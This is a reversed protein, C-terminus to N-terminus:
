RDEERSHTRTRTSPRATQRRLWGQAALDDLEATERREREARRQMARRELIMQAARLRTRDDQWRGRASEAAVRSAEATVRRREIDEAMATVMARHAHFEQVTGHGFDPHRHLLLRAAEAAAAHAAYAGLAAQLKVRSDQERIGRVREVSGLARDQEHHRTSM